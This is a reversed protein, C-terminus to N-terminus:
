VHARGIQNMSFNIAVINSMRTLVEPFEKFECNYLEIDTLNTMEAFSDPLKEVFGGSIYIHTLNTLQSIEEPISTIGNTKIGTGKTTPKKTYARAYKTNIVDNNDLLTYKNKKYYKLALEEKAIEMREAALDIGEEILSSKDISYVVEDFDFVGMDSNIGLTLSQLDTLTAIDAPVDGRPNFCGINISRVRGKASLIIGPQNGWEDIPRNEFRWNCGEPLFYGSYSWNEGDLAKWINYLAIYDSIAKMNKPYVIPLSTRSFNNPEVTFYTDTLDAALTMETRNKTYLLYKTIEYDGSELKVTDTHFFNENASSYAKVALIAPRESSGKRRYYIDAEKTQSYKFDEPSQATAKTTGNVRDMEDQYNSLDKELKFSVTGRLKSSVSLELEYIHGNVIDFVTSTSPYITAIEQPKEEGLIVSGLLRYSLLNYEGSNLSLKESTLGHDAAGNIERMSLTQVIPMGKHRLTLEVKKIESLTEVMNAKTIMEPLIRVQIYGRESDISTVNDDSCASLLTLALMTILLYLNNILKM